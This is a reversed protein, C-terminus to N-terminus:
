SFASSMICRMSLVSTFFFGYKSSWCRKRSFSIFSFACLISLVEASLGSCYYCVIFLLSLIYVSNTIKITMAASSMIPITSMWSDFPPPRAAPKELALESAPTRWVVLKMSFAVHLRAANMTTILMAHAYKAGTALVSPLTMSFAAISFGAVLGLLTCPKPAECCFSAAAGAAAGAASAGAASAGAAGAAGADGAFYCM